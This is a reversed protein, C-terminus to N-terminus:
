LGRPRWSRNCPYKKYIPFYKSIHTGWKSVKPVIGSETTQHQVVRTCAATETKYKVDISTNRHWSLTCSYFYIKSIILTMLLSNQKGTVTVDPTRMAGEQM